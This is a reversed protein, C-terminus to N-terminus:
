KTRGGPMRWSEANVAFTWNYQYWPLIQVPRTYVVDIYIHDMVKRISVGAPDIRIGIKSGEAVVVTRTEDDDRDGRFEAVQRVSDEFKFHDLQASGAQWAAYLVLAAIALKILKGM